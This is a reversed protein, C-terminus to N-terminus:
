EGATMDYYTPPYEEQDNCRRHSRYFLRLLRFLNFRVNSTLVM